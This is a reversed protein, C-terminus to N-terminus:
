DNEFSMSWPKDLEVGDGPAKWPRTGPPYRGEEAMVELDSVVKKLNNMARFHKSITAEFKRASKAYHKEAEESLCKAELKPAVAVAEHWQEETLGSADLNERITQAPGVRFGPNAECVSTLMKEFLRMQVRFQETAQQKQFELLERVMMLCESNIKDKDSSMPLALSAEITRRRKVEDHITDDDLLADILGVGSSTPAAAMERLETM